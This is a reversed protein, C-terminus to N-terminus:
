AVFREVFRKSAQQGFGVAETDALLDEDGLFPDADFPSNFQQPIMRGGYGTRADGHFAEQKGHEADQRHEGGALRFFGGHGLWGGGHGLDGGSGLGGREAGTTVPADLGGEALQVAHCGHGGAEHAAVGIAALSTGHFNESSLFLAKQTPDYHDSLHGGVENVPMDELGAHDLIRRAAAAGSLGRMSEVKLYRNYTSSLKVQAYIALILGPLMLWWYSDLIMMGLIM